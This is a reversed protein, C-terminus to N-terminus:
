FFLLVMFRIASIIYIMQVKSPTHESHLGELFPGLFDLTQTAAQHVTVVVAAASDGTMSEGGEREGEAPAVDASNNTEMDEQDSEGDSSRQEERQNM